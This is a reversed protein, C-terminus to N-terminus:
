DGRPSQDPPEADGAATVPDDRYFDILSSLAELVEPGAEAETIIGRAVAHAVSLDPTSLAYSKYLTRSDGDHFAHIRDNLAFADLEKARWREFDKELTALATTLERDHALRVLERLKKKVAKPLEPRM